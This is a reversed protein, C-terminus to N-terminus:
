AFVGHERLINVGIVILVLGGFANAHSGWAGAMACMIRGLHIGAATFACCVIGIVVAPFFVAEGLLALSLGIALADISTAVGLLLLQHGKTPDDPCAACEAETDRKRNTWAERLMRGGIFALLAFAIWHDYESIFGHVSHGLCWGTVPMAFQFFGFTGAMRATQAFSVNRLRMGAAVAVAFADMALAVAIALLTSFLM